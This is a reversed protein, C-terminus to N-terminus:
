LSLSERGWENKDVMSWKRIFFFLGGEEGEYFIDVRRVKIFFFDDGWWKVFLFSESKNLAVDKM